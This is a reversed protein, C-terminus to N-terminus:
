IFDSLELHTVDQLTALLLAKNAGNGDADYYLAGTDSDFIYRDNADHAVAGAGQVFNDESVKQKDFHTAHGETMRVSLTLKDNGSVFDTIIVSSTKDNGADPFILFSFTDNGSGGTLISNTAVEDPYGTGRSTALVFLTDDGSGGSVTDNASYFYM